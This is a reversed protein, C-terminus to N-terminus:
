FLDGQKGYVKSDLVEASIMKGSREYFVYFTEYKVGVWCKLIPPAEIIVGKESVTIGCTCFTLVVRILRKEEM